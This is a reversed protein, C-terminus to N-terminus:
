GRHFEVENYRFDYPAYDDLPYIYGGRTKVYLGHEDIGYVEADTGQIDELYLGCDYDTDDVIAINEWDEDYENYKAFFGKDAKVLEAIEEYSEPIYTRTISTLKM